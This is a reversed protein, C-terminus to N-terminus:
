LGLEDEEDADDNDGLHLEEGKKENIKGWSLEKVKKEGYFEASYLYFSVSFIMVAILYWSFEINILAKARHLAAEEHCRVERHGDDWILACGKPIFVKTWLMIGTTMLWAGLFSLSVSRVFVLIFSKPFGIGM